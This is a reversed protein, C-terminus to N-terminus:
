SQLNTLLVISCVNVSPSIPPVFDRGPLSLEGYFSLWSAAIPSTGDGTANKAERVRNPPLYYSM